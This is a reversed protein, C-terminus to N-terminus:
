PYRSTFQHEKPQRTHIKSRSYRVTHVHINVFADWDIDGATCPGTQFIHTLSCSTSKLPSSNM